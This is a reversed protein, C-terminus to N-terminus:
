MIDFMKNINENKFLDENQMTVRFLNKNKLCIGFFKHQQKDLSMWKSYEEKQRLHPYKKANKKYNQNQIEQSIM